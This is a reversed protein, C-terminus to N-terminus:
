VGAYIKARAYCDNFLKIDSIAFTDASLRMRAAELYAYLESEFSSGKKIFAATEDTHSQGYCLRGLSREFFFEIDGSVVVVVTGDRYLCIETIQEPFLPPKPWGTLESYGPISRDFPDIM